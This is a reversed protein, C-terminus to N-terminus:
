LKHINIPSAPEIKTLEQIFFEVICLGEISDSLSLYALFEWVRINLQFKMVMDMVARCQTGMVLRNLVTEM